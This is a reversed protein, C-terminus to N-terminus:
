KSSEIQPNFNQENSLKVIEIQKKDKHNIIIIEENSSSLNLKEIIDPFVLIDTKKDEF